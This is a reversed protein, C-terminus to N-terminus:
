DQLQYATAQISKHCSFDTLPAHEEFGKSTTLKIRNGSPSSKFFLSTETFDVKCSAEQNGFTNTLM